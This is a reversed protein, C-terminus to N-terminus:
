EWTIQELVRSAPSGKGQWRQKVVALASDTVAVDGRALAGAAFLYYSVETGGTGGTVATVMEFCLVIPGREAKSRHVVLVLILFIFYLIGVVLPPALLDCREQKLPLLAM